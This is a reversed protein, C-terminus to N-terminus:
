GNVRVYIQYAQGDLEAKVIALGKKVGTVQGDASVTAISSDMSSWTVKSADDALYLKAKEGTKLHVALRQEDALELVKVPIYEKFAGDTSQAYIDATGEAIATVKGNADVTAVAENTSNWTYKKNNDLNFSTSLQVAEGENLLVSLKLTSGDPTFNDTYKAVGKTIEINDLYGKFSYDHSDWTNYGKGIYFDNLANQINGITGEGVKIGDIFMKTENNGIGARSIAIHHWTNLSPVSASIVSSYGNIMFYFGKPSSINNCGILWGTKTTLDDNGIIYEGDSKNFDDNIYVWMEITFPLTGFNFDDSNNIKLYNSTGKNVFLSSGGFKSNEKSIYCNSPSGVLTVSHGAEDIFGDKDFHMNLKTYNDEAAWVSVSSMGLILCLTMLIAIFRKM